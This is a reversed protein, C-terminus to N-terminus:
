KNVDEGKGAWKRDISASLEEMEEDSLANPVQHNDNEIIAKALSKFIGSVQSYPFKEIVTKAELEAKYIEESHPINGLM